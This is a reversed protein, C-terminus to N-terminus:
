TAQQRKYNNSQQAQKSRLNSIVKSIKFKSLIKTDKHTAIKNNNNQKLM